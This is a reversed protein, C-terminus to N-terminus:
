LSARERRYSPKLSFCTSNISPLAMPKSYQSHKGKPSEERRQFMERKRERERERNLKGKM